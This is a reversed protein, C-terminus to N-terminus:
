QATEQPMELDTVVVDVRRAGSAGAVIRRLEAATAEVPAGFRLVVAIRAPEDPGGLAVGTLRRGPLYSAVTGYPGASLAAVAPHALLAEAVRVPLPGLGPAEPTGPGVASTGSRPTSV